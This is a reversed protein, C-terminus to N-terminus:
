ILPSTQKAASVISGIMATTTFTHEMDDFDWRYDGQYKKLTKSVSKLGYGHIKKDEKTTILHGGQANPATDCSNSVIIVSYGNRDTTELSVYRGESKVAAALANDMLNGLVAVLDIDEMEKLNCTRVNYDFTLMLHKSEMVYKNIIVDLMMNGSHCNKSYDKLQESLKEVYGKIDPNTTLEQIAALHKKADHAYLMLDQNQQELIDYYAKETKLREFESKLRVLESSKELQEQYTIFLVLTSIFIITSAIALLYQIENTVDNKTCIYWFITLCVSISVPYYFLQIPAKAENAKPNILNSLILCTLFLLTKSAFTSIIVLPFNNNLGATDAHILASFCFIAVLELAFNLVVLILAYCSAVFPRLGFCIIAFLVMASFSLTTNIFMNNQSLLNGLSALEFLLLGVLLARPSPMQMTATRSLFVYVILMEAAYITCSVVPNLM